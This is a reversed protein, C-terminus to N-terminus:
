YKEKLDYKSLQLFEIPDDIEIIEIVAQKKDLSNLYYAEVIKYGIFYGLDAPTEKAKTYNYLWNESTSNCLENKFEQWLEGENRNGYIHAVTNIHGGSVLEGIFDAAGEILCYYLLPCNISHADLKIHSQQTHVYEHAVIDRIKQIVSNGKALQKSYAVNNFESLDTDETAGSVEAGILLYDDSVTGGTNALGIVFCVKFPKFNPYIQEFKQVIDEILPVINKVELTNKRVSNYFKPYQSVANVFKEATFDRVKIFDKLGDTARDLYIHQFSSISDNRNKCAKLNDFAEWFNDIDTTQVNETKNLTEGFSFNTISLLLFLFIIRKM